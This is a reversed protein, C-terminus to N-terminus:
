PMRHTKAVRYELCLRYLFSLTLVPHRLCSSLYLEITKARSSLYLELPFISSQRRQRQVFVISDKYLSSLARDKRQVISSQREEITKFVPHRLCSLSSLPFISSCPPSSAYSAKLQVGNTKRAFCGSIIPSKRLFHGIFILVQPDEGSQIGYFGHFKKHNFLARKVCRPPPRMNPATGRQISHLARKISHLVREVSDVARKVCRPPRM